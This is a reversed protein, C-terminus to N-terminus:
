GNINKKKFEEDAILQRQRLYEMQEITAKSKVKTDGELPLFKNIPLHKGKISINLYSHYAIFRTHYWKEKKSREFAM